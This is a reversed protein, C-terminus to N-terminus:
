SNEVPEQGWSHKRTCNLAAYYDKLENTYFLSSPNKGPLSHYRAPCKGLPNKGQGPSDPLPSTSGQGTFAIFKVHAKYPQLM